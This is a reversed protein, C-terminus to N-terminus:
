DGPQYSHSLHQADVLIGQLCFQIENQTSWVQSVTILKRSTPYFLPVLVLAPKSKSVELYLASEGASRETISFLPM